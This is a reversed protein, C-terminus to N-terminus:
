KPSEGYKNPGPTGDIVCFILVIIAGIGCLFSLLYWWGSRDTDHLRRVTVAIGPIILALGVILTIWGYPSGEVVRLKLVSDLLSSVITLLLVFLVWYWYESRRARGSFTAYKSFVTSVAQGFSM